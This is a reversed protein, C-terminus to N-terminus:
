SRKKKKKNISGVSKIIIYDLVAKGMKNVYNKADHVTEFGEEAVESIKRNAKKVSVSLYILFGILVLLFLSLIVAQVSQSLYFFLELNM